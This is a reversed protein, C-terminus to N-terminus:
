RATRAADLGSVGDNDDRRRLKVVLYIVVAINVVLAIVRVATLARILEYLEFPILSGTAVVTLYEAWRKGQWLGVGEVAFLIAYALAAVGVLSEKGPTATDLLHLSRGIFQQGHELSLDSLWQRVTSAVSDSLLSFAGAAALLLLFAKVLKFAAITALASDRRHQQPM